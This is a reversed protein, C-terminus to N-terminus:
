FDVLELMDATNDTVVTKPFQINQTPINHDMHCRIMAQLEDCYHWLRVPCASKKM